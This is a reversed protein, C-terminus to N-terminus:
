VQGGRINVAYEPDLTWPCQPRVPLGVLVPASGQRGADEIGGNEDMAALYEEPCEGVAGATRAGSPNRMIM